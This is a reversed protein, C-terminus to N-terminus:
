KTGDSDPTSAGSAVRARIGELESLDRKADAASQAAKDSLIKLTGAWDVREVLLGRLRELDADIRALFSDILAQNPTSM